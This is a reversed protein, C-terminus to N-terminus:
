DHLLGMQRLHERILSARAGSDSLSISNDSEKLHVNIPRGLSSDFKFRLTLEQFDLQQPDFGHIAMWSYCESEDFRQTTPERLAHNPAFKLKSVRIETVGGQTINLANQFSETKLPSLDVIAGSHWQINNARVLFAQIFMHKLANYFTKNTSSTHIKFLGTSPRYEYTASFVKRHPRSILRDQEDIEPQQILYGPYHIFVILRDIDSICEICFNTGFGLDKATMEIGARFTDRHKLPDPIVKVPVQLKHFQWKHISSLKLFVKARYYIEPHQGILSIALTTADINQYLDKRQFSQCARIMASMGDSNSLMGIDAIIESFNTNSAALKNVTQIRKEPSSEMLLKSEEENLSFQESLQQLIDGEVCSLIASHITM